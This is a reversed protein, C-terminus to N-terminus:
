VTLTRGRAAVKWHGDARGGRVVVAQDHLAVTPCVHWPVGYLVTGVPFDAARDTDLVLHEESHGVAKAEELGFLVVRPHPNESAVAKHGLDLCLRTSTPRSIVRTLLLLAPEFPLDPLLSAYSADWFATTGPSCEVGPRAAHFPFTPTGGAVVSPVALGAALIADRTAEVHAFAEDSAQRRAEPDTGRVHGDYMHLGAAALGPSASLHRYLAVAAPGPAIGTRHMGGDLDLYLPLTVGAAVAAASLADIAGQDDVVASFRTAPFAQGLRVFRAVNPGVPQYALLVDAAGAAATMEAEAITACKFRSIGQDLHLRVVERMKTTKVHPRLRRADGAIDVLRRINREVRDPYVLLAPSPVEAVNDVSYWSM